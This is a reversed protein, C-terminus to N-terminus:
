PKPASDSAPIWRAVEIENEGIGRQGGGGFDDVGPLIGRGHRVHAPHSAHQRRRERLPRAPRLLLAAALRALAQQPRRDLHQVIATEAAERHRLDRATGANRVARQDM